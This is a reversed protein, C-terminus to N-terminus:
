SQIGVYEGLRDYLREVVFLRFSDGLKEIFLLDPSRIRGM